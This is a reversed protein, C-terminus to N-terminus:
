ILAGKYQWLQSAIYMAFSLILVFVIISILKEINTTSGVTKYMTLRLAYLAATLIVLLAVDYLILWLTQIVSM